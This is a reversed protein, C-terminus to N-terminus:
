RYQPEASREASLLDLSVQHNFGYSLGTLLLEAMGMLDIKYGTFHGLNYSDWDKNGTIQSPNKASHKMSPHM